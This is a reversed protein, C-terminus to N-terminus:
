KKRRLRRDFFVTVVRNPQVHPNVVVRLLRGDFEQISKIYHTNHDAGTERQDPSDITRWIWEESIGREALTDRAHLSLEINPM